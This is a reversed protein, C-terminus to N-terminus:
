RSNLLPSCVRDFERNHRRPRWKREAAIEPVYKVQLTGLAVADPLM